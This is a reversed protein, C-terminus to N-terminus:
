DCGVVAQRDGGNWTANRSGEQNRNTRMKKRPYAPLGIKHTWGANRKEMHALFFYPVLAGAFISWKKMLGEMKTIMFAAENGYPHREFNPCGNQGIVGIAESCVVRLQRSLKSTWELFDGDYDMVNSDYDWQM